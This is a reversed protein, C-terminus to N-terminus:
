PRVFHLTCGDYESVNGNRWRLKKGAGRQQSPIHYSPEISEGAKRKEKEEHAKDTYLEYLRARMDIIGNVIKLGRIRANRETSNEVGERYVKVTKTVEEWKHGAKFLFLSMQQSNWTDRIDSSRCGLFGDRLWMMWIRLMRQQDSDLPYMTLPLNWVVSNWRVEYHANTKAFSSPLPHKITHYIKDSQSVDKLINFLANEIDFTRRGKSIDIEEPLDQAFLCLEPSGDKNYHFALATVMAMGSETFPNEEM